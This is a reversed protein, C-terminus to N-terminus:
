LLKVGNVKAYQEIAEISSLGPRTLMRENSQDTKLVHKLEHELAILRVLTPHHEEGGKLYMTYKPLVPLLSRQKDTLRYREQLEDLHAKKGRQRALMVGGFDDILSEGLKYHESGVSGKLLDNPRHTASLNIWELSRAIKSLFVSVRANVINEFSRHREDDLELHPLLNLLGNEIAFIRLQSDLTRMITEGMGGTAFGTWLRVVARQGYMDYLNSSDGFLEADPGSFIDDLLDFVDEKANLTVVPDLTIDRTLQVKFEADIRELEHKDEILLALRAMRAKHEEVMLDRHHQHYDDVDQRDMTRVCELLMNPSWLYPNKRFMKLVAVRLARRKRATLTDHPSFGALVQAMALLQSYTRTLRRDFPNVRQQSMIFRECGVVKALSDYEMEYETSGDKREQRLVKHDNIAIRLQDFGATWMAYRVALMKLTASKGFGKVGFFGFMMSDIIGQDKMWVPDFYVVEGSYVDLGIPVGYQFLTSQTALPHRLTIHETPGAHSRMRILSM